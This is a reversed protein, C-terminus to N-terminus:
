GRRGQTSCIRSVMQCCAQPPPSLTISPTRATSRRLRGHGQLTSRGAAARLWRSSNAVFKSRKSSRAACGGPASILCEQTQGVVHNEVLLHYTAIGAGVVPFPLLYRAVRYDRHAAAFLTLLSLPGIAAVASVRLSALVGPGSGSRSVELFVLQLDAPLPRKRLASPM